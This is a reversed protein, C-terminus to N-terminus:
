ERRAWSPCLDLRRVLDALRQAVAARNPYSRGDYYIWRLWNTAAIVTGTRDLDVVLEREWDALPRVEAYAQLGAERLAADAGVLSGLLRTLDVAIHDVKVSGYDILGTVVDGTFLVHAHWIDCLCPQVPVRRSLWPGLHRPLDAHRAQVQLWARRAWPTIPDADTWNPQWGQQLLRQWEALAALRREVAPCVASTATRDAWALHLHALARCAAQLRPISPSAHFDATGPLWTTMEWLTDHHQLWTPGHQTPILRPVFPLAAARHLLSHLFALQAQTMGGPPWARLCCDGAATELRWLRAGSFAGPSEHPHAHGRFPPPYHALVEALPSM